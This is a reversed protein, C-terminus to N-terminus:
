ENEDSSKEILFEAAEWGITACKIRNAQKSVNSFVVASELIDADYDRENVMKNYENIIIQAEELTKDMLLETMISTSATSITCAIGDFRIDKIINDKVVMQVKIDDICSESDMHKELYEGESLLKHNRPYQYHDMIMQRVIMPDKLMEKM